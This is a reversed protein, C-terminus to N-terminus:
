GREHFPRLAAILMHLNGGDDAMTGDVLYPGPMTVRAALRPYMSPPIVTEILGTEDELTLFQMTEGDTSHVRSAAVIGAFRFRGSTTQALEAATLCSAERAEPRLVQMPHATLHMELYNLENRIRVLLRYRRQSEDDAPVSGAIEVVRKFATPNMKGKLGKVLAEHVFPYVNASLPPLDDCAGSLILAQTERVAPHVRGLLEDVSRFRGRDRRSAVIAEASKRTLHKVQALGVRVADEDQVLTAALEAHNVAPPLVQVGHRQIDAVVTRLPYAGGYGNLLAVGWAARHHTKMYAAAYAMVAYSLAHAKAFSYAAFRRANHWVARAFAPDSGARHAAGLFHRELQRLAARDEGASIIAARLEDAAALSLGGADALVRILDEDYLLVGHTRRLREALAAHVPRTPADNRARRVYDQKAAGGAAGPRVLALAAVCDDLSSIDLQRLLARVAPTEVQFCGITDARDICALTAADDPPLELVDADAPVRALTAADDIQTLLKSGLLDLKVLGTRAIARLDYQTVLLGRPGKEVPVYDSIPADGVVLGAPHLALLRPRGVLRLALSLMEREPATAGPYITDATAPSAEGDVPLRACVREIVGRRAGLAKLGDRVAGRLQFRHIAGVMAARNCGFRRGAWAILEDRRRSCVDIDIDPPSARRAHLFREFLLDSAVPDASSVGTLHVVLSGVASGRAAIPIARVRAAEAIEAAVLFYGAYRLAEIVNLEHALRHDYAQDQYRGQRRGRELAARCLHALRALPAAGAFAEAGPLVLAGSPLEFRCAAAVAEAGAVAEPMDAYLDAAQAPPRLWREPPEIAPSGVIDSVRHGQRIAAQLVHAPHDAAHLLVVEPDAIVRVGLRRATQLAAAQQPASGPRVLLLGSDQPNLGELDRLRELTPADDTLVFLGDMLGAIAAVPEAAARLEATGCGGRRRSVIRCLNRYGARDKALLVVRGVQDGPHRKDANPRLEVGSIPRIGRARCLDHFHPQGALSDIDTLALAPYALAAARKVLAEPSATGYGLSYDSKVHLPILMVPNIRQLPTQQTALPKM